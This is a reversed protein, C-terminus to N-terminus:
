INYIGSVSPPGRLKFLFYCDSPIFLCDQISVKNDVFEPLKINLQILPGGFSCEGGMYRVRPGYKKITHKNFSLGHDDFAPAINVSSKLVPSITCHGNTFSTLLEGKLNNSFLVLLLLPLFNVIAKRNSMM